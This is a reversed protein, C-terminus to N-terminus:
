SEQAKLTINLSAVAENLTCINDIQICINGNEICHSDQLRKKLEGTFMRSRKEFNAEVTDWVEM